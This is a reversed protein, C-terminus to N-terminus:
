STYVNGFDHTYMLMDNGQGIDVIQIKQQQGNWIVVPFESDHNSSYSFKHKPHFIQFLIWNDSKTESSNPYIEESPAGPISPPRGAWLSFMGQFCWEQGARPFAPFQLVNVCAWTFLYM